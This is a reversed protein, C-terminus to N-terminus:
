MKKYVPSFTLIRGIPMFYAKFVFERLARKRELIRRRMFQFEGEHMKKFKGHVVDYYDDELRCCMAPLVKQIAMSKEIKSM